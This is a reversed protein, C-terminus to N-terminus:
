VLELGDGILNWRLCCRCIWLKSEFILGYLGSVLPDCGDKFWCFESHVFRCAKVFVDLCAVVLAACEFLLVTNGNTM